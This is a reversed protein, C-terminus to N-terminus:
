AVFAMQPAFKAPSPDTLLLTAYLNGPESVWTRGRRGRGSTQRHAVVWLPGREGARVLSLAETNTSSLTERVILRAGSAVALADLYM